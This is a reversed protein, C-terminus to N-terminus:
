GGLSGHAPPLEGLVATGHRRVLVRQVFCLCSVCLEGRLAGKGEVDCGLLKADYSRQASWVWGLENWGSQNGVCGDCRFDGSRRSWMSIWRAKIGSGL